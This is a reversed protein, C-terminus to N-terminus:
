LAEEEVQLRFKKSYLVFYLAVACLISLIGFAVATMQLTFWQAFLGLLLTFIIQLSSQFINAISGFRGMLEPPVSHQYFTEYGTNCFAM